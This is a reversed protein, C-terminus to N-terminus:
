WESGLLPHVADYREEAAAHKRKMSAVKKERVAKRQLTVIEAEISALAIILAMVRDDHGRMAGYKGAAVESYSCMESLTSADYIKIERERVFSKGVAVAHPKTRPNTDWGIKYTDKQVAADKTPRTYYKRYKCKRVIDDTLARGVGRIEWSLFAENYVYGLAVLLYGFLDPDINGHWVAVQELPPYSTVKLIQACNFDRKSQDESVGETAKGEAVDAGIVYKEFPEPPKWVKFRGRESPEYRPTVVIRKGVVKRELEVNCVLEPDRVDKEMRDTHVKAFVTQGSFVFAESETSPFEQKFKDLEGFFKSEIQQRRWFLKRWLREETLRPDLKRLIKDERFRDFLGEEYDDYFTKEGDGVEYRNDWYWPIFVRRWISPVDITGVKLNMWFDYFANYGRATTEIFVITQPVTHCCSLLSGLAGVLDPWYAAESAHVFQYTGGRGLADKEQASKVEVRSDLVVGAHQKPGRMFGKPENFELVGLSDRFVPFYPLQPIGAAETEDDDPLQMLYRKMIRFITIATADTHAVLLTNAHKRGITYWFGLAQMMTSIGSQRMKLCAVRVPLGASYDPEIYNDFVYQQIPNLVFPILGGGIPMIKLYKACFQPFLKIDHLYDWADPEIEPTILIGETNSDVLNDDTLLLQLGKKRPLM